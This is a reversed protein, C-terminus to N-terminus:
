FISCEVCAQMNKPFVLIMSDVLFTFFIFFVSIVSVRAIKTIIAMSSHAQLALVVGGMTDLRGVIMGVSGVTEEVGKAVGDAEALMDVEGNADAVAEALAVVFYCDVLVHAPMMGAWVKIQNECSEAASNLGNNCSAPPVFIDTLRLAITVIMMASAEIVASHPQLARCGTLVGTGVGYRAEVVCGPVGLMGDTAGSLVALWSVAPSVVVMGSAAVAAPAV